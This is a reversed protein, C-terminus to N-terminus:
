TGGKSALLTLPTTFMKSGSSKSFFINRQLLLSTHKPSLNFTIKKKKSKETKEKKWFKQLLFIKVRIIFSSLIYIFSFAM